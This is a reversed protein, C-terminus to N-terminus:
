NEEEEIIPLNLDDIEINNQLKLNAKDSILNIAEERTLGEFDDATIDLIYTWRRFMHDLNHSLLKENYKDLFFLGLFKHAYNMGKGVHEFEIVLKGYHESFDVVYTRTELIEMEYMEDDWAQIEIEKYDCNESSVFSKEYEVEKQFYTYADQLNDFTKTELYCPDNTNEHYDEKTQVIFNVPLFQIEQAKERLEALTKM